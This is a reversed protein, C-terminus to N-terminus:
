QGASGRYRSVDPASLASARNGWANRVFSLVAALEADDLAQTFPPMGFPRPNGATAPPFGGHAAIRVVNVPPEMTVARNGALAPYANPV